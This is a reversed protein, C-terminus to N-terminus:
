PSIFALVLCCFFDVLQYEVSQSKINTSGCPTYTHCGFFDLSMIKEM